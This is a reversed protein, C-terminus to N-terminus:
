AAKKEAPMARLRAAAKMLVTACHPNKMARYELSMDELVRAAEERCEPCIM